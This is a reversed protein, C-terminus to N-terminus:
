VVECDSSVEILAECEELFTHKLSYFMDNKLHDWFIWLLLM